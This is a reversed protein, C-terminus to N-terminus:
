FRLKGAKKYINQPKTEVPRNAPTGDCLQKAQEISKQVNFRSYEGVTGEYFNTKPRLKTYHMWDFPNSVNYFPQHGLRDFLDDAVYRVYQKVNEPTLEPLNVSELVEDAFDDVLKVVQDIFRHVEEDTYQEEKPLEMYNACGNQCHGCEDKAIQENSFMSRRMKGKKYARYWFIICFLPTFLIYEAAALSVYKQRADKCHTFSDQIFKNMRGISKVKAVANFIEDRKQPDPVLTYIMKGYTEGHVTENDLQKVYFMQEEFSEATLIMLYALMTSISGDGVAFFGFAMLLPHQEDSTMENFDNRDEHFEVEDAPWFSAELIKTRMFAGWNNIPYLGFRKATSLGSQQQRRESIRAVLSAGEYPTLLKSLEDLITDRDIMTSAKLKDTLNKLKLIDNAETVEKIVPSSVLQVGSM